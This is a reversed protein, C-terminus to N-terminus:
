IKNFSSSNDGVISNAIRDGVADWTNNDIANKRALFRMDLYEKSNNILYAMKESLEVSDNEDSLLFGTKCDIVYEPIAFSNSSIAPCGYYGLESLILPNVDKKTPHLVLFSKKFVDILKDKESEISKNIFGLYNVGETQQLSEPPAAGIINLQCSPYRKKINKFAEVAVLGGKPEFERSIFLFEFGGTYADKDPIDIYGGVGVKVFNEGSLNYAKKTEELAWTSQFFVYTANSLWNAEQDFIRKLDKDLFKKRDNYLTVYTEFCADNFCYYKTKPKTKIWPTFGHFFLESNHDFKNRFIDAIRQLRKESFFHYKSQLRFIQRTKSIGKSLFGQKPNIMVYNRIEFHKKLQNYTASNIGSMGGSTNSLDLNSVYTIKKM